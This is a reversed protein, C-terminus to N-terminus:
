RKKPLARLRTMAATSGPSAAAGTILGVASLLVPLALQIDTVIGSAAANGALYPQVASAVAEVDAQIQQIVPQAQTQTLSTSLSQAAAIAQQAYMAVSGAVAAPVNPLNPLVNLLSNAITVADNLVTQAIQNNTQGTTCAALAVGPLLAALTRRTIM